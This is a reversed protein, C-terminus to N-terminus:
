LIEKEWRETKTDFRKVIRGPVGVIVSYDPFTGRVVANAGVICHRGLVTGAQIIAGFGIFCGDGIKTDIVKIEQDLISKNIDDYQHDINTICVNGVITVDDGIKLEGGSTIHVNQEVATNNGIKIRGNGIAEMRIGPFIRVRNGIYIKKRGEIYTPRGIYTMNGVKGFSLKYIIARVAWLYKLPHMFEGKINGDQCAM